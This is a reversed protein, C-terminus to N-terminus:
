EEAATVAARGTGQLVRVLLTCSGPYRRQRDSDLRHREIQEIVDRHETRIKLRLILPRRARAM